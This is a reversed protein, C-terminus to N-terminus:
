GNYILMTSPDSFGFRHRTSENQKQMQTQLPMFLLKVNKLDRGFYRLIPLLTPHCLM